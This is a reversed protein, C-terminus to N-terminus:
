AENSKRINWHVCLSPSTEYSGCSASESSCCNWAFGVYRSQHDADKCNLSSTCFMYDIVMEILAACVLQSVEYSEQTTPGSSKHSADITEPTKSAVPSLQIQTRRGIGIGIGGAIRPSIDVTEPGAGAVEKGAAAAATDAEDLTSAFTYILPILVCVLTDVDKSVSDANNLASTLALHSIVGAM